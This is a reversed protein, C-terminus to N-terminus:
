LMMCGQKHMKRTESLVPAAAREDGAGRIPVLFQGTLLTVLQPQQQQKSQSTLNVKEPL